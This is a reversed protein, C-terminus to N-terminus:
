APLAQCGEHLLYILQRRGAAICYGPQSFWLWDFRFFIRLL